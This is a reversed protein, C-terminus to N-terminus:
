TFVYSQILAVFETSASISRRVMAAEEESLPERPLPLMGGLIYARDFIRRTLEESWFELCLRESFELTTPEAPRLNDYYCLSEAAILLAKRVELDIAEYEAETYLARARICCQWGEAIHPKAKPKAGEFDVVLGEEKMRRWDMPMM